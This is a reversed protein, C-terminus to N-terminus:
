RSSEGAAASAAPTMGFREILGNQRALLTFRAVDLDYTARSLALAADLLDREARLVDFLTGRSVRFQEVFLDRARRSDLYATELPAIALRLKAVDAEAIALERAAATEARDVALEASRRKAKLEAVRSGQAGGTAFTQRLVIQGRVDYAPTGDQLVNYGNAGLRGSIVPLRDAKAADVAASAERFQAQAAVVEPRLSQNSPPITEPAIVRAVDPAPAGFLEQYLAEAVALQRAFEVQQSQAGAVYARARAVDGGSDVGSRFRLAAGEALDELRQVNDGALAVATRYQLVEYWSSILALLAQNRLADLNARAAAVGASSQRIRASTAGFDTILQDIAGMADNRNLPALNEVPTAPNNLDRVLTRAVILDINLTPFLQSRAQQRLEKAAVVSEAQEGLIPLQAAGAVVSADFAATGERRALGALFIDTDASITQPAGSPPPLSIAGAPAPIAASLLALLRLTLRPRVHNV